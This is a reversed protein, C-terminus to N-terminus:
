ALLRSALKHVQRVEKSDLEWSALEAAILDPHRKSIDRLANGVSKRVYDSADERLAFLRRVAEEPHERFYDRGTWIRLGETM